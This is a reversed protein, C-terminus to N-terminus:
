SAATVCHRGCRRYPPPGGVDWRRDLQAAADPPALSAVDDFVRALTLGGTGTRTSLYVLGDVDDLPSRNPDPHEFEALVMAVVASKGIGRRGTVSVIRKDRTVVHHRLGRRITDRDRWTVVAASVRDGVVRVVEADEGGGQARIELPLGPWLGTLKDVPLMSATRSAPDQDNYRAVIGVVGELADDWVPSGSYGPQM